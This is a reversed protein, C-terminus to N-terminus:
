SKGGKKLYNWQDISLFFKEITSTEAMSQTTFSRCHIVMIEGTKYM